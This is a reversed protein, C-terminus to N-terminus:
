LNLRVMIDTVTVTTIKLIQKNNTV